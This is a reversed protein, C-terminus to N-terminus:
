NFKKGVFVGNVTATVLSGGPKGDRLPHIVIEAKDDAKISRSTWGIGLLGAAAGGEIAWVVEEGTNPDTVILDVWIHPNTWQFRKVTGTLTMTKTEDFQARSHHAFAPSVAAAALTLACLVAITAKSKM